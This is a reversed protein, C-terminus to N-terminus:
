DGLRLRARIEHGDREAGLWDHGQIRCWRPLDAEVGPDTCHLLLETGPPLARAAEAARIVPMPCLLGRLDLEHAAGTV